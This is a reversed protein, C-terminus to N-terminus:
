ACTPCHPDRPVEFEEFRGRLADFHLMRGVLPTGIGLLLKLAESAQLLGIVGPVVGLVGAEACSPALEPPPPEPYLCRYCPGDGGPGAPWFVTVQGEFRFVSGHVAPIGLAVCAENVAYRTAFNDSGDIVLDQGALLRRANAADIRDAVGAVAVGPNLALLRERASDVKPRGAGADGHLVQRQLNSTEVVDDDVVTLHGVGAAALYLAAPSGLGGAGVLLVHGAGLRRQGAEGVEPLALQRSYRAWDLDGRPPTTPLGERRWRVLGGAVSRADRYGLSALQDATSRSRQGSECLVLLTAERDPAITGIRAAVDCRPLHIAGRATGAALEAAERVDILVTGAQVLAQAEGPSVDRVAASM